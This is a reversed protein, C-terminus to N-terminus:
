VLHLKLASPTMSVTPLTFLKHWKSPLRELHSSHNILSSPTTQSLLFVLSMERTGFGAFSFPLITALGVVSLILAIDVLPMQIDLSLFILSIAGYFALYAILTIAWLVFSHRNVAQSVCSIIFQIIQNNAFRKIRIIKKLMWDIFLLGTFFTISAIAIALYPNTIGISTYFLLAAFGLLILMGLDFIRDIVVTRFAPIFEIENEQRMYYLRAIEGIRGPTILGITFSAMYAGFSKGVPYRFGQHKIILHWRYSKIGLVVIVGTLSFFYLPLNLQSIINFFSDKDFEIFSFLLLLIIISGLIKFILNLASKSM